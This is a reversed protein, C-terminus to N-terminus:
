GLLLSQWTKRGIIGDVTLGEGRQYSRVADETSRGFKGDFRDGTTNARVSLVGAAALLGQARRDDNSSRGLDTRIKLTPLNQVTQDTWTRSDDPKPKAPAPAPSPDGDLYRDLMGSVIDGPCDTVRTASHPAITGGVTDLYRCATAWMEPTPQEGPGVLLLLGYSDRNDSIGDGDSDGPNHAGTGNGRGRYLLGSPGTVHSYGIGNKWGNRDIHDREIGRILSREAKLLDPAELLRAQTGKTGTWHVTAGDRDQVAPRRDYDLRASWKAPSVQPLSELNPV